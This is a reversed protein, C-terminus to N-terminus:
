THEVSGDEREFREPHGADDPGFEWAAVRGSELVPRLDWMIERVESNNGDVSFSGDARPILPLDVHRFAFRAGGGDRVVALDGYAPNFFRGYAAEALFPWPWAIEFPVAPLALLGRWTGRPPAEEIADRGYTGGLAYRGPLLKWIRTTQKEDKEIKLVKAEIVLTSIETLEAVSKRRDRTEAVSVAVGALLSAAVLVPITKM